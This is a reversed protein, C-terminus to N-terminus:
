RTKSFCKYKIVGVVARCGSRLRGVFNYASGGGPRRSRIVPISIVPLRMCGVMAVVFPKAPWRCALLRDKMRSNMVMFMGADKPVACLLHLLYKFIRSTLLRRSSEYLGRRGAFVVAFGEELKQLMAPIAEPPDQLDADMIIIRKGQARSLATLVAQHQGVNENLDLVRIREDSVELKRLVQLSNEPCADNVFLLEYSCSRDFVAALRDRLISVTEANKYVPIIISVRPKQSM